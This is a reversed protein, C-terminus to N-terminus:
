ARSEALLRELRRVLEDDLVHEVQDVSWDVHSPAIDAHTILYQEWLAHNRAVRAGRASGIHTLTAVGNSMTIFGRIQLAKALLKFRLSPIGHEDAIDSLPRGPSTNTNEFLYELLHDNAIRWRIRARRLATALVGRAPALFMSAAFLAGATLVIVSGAPKRPLLASVSSGAYGSAGGILASLLILKWLRETWFRASAAPIILMAVILILGVAQLGSVTVLVILGLIVTDMLWAPIGTARAFSDNFCVLSLEKLLLLAVAASFVGIVGMTITDSRTMAATQGYIFHNLGAANGSANTQIVSLLVVGLGFFVSLVIGISADERLRTKTILLHICVVGLVGTIAAGIMLVPMSRPALGLSPAALFAICIGPLTAHSLADATLSRKRLLAFAGILGAAIGLLTTGVIVSTTNFGAQLTLTRVIEDITPPMDVAGPISGGTTTM